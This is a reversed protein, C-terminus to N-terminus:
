ILSIYKERYLFALMDQLPLGMIGDASGSVYEFLHRGLGEFMYGGCCNYPKEVDVYYAIEDHSLSRMKLAISESFESLLEANHYICAATHQYHIDGQMTELQEITNEHTLPKGLSLHDYEGMQDGGIVLADPHQISVAYAKGQALFMAQEPIPLHEINKKEADEDFPSPIIDFELGVSKLLNRRAISSSALIIQKHQKISMQDVQSIIFIYLIHCNLVKIASNARLVYLM